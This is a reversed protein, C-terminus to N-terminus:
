GQEMANPVKKGVDVMRPTTGDPSIHTSLEHGCAGDGGTQVTSLTRCKRVCFNDVKSTFGVAIPNHAGRTPVRRVALLVTNM